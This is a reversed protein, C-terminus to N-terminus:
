NLDLKYKGTPVAAHFSGGHIVAGERALEGGQKIFTVSGSAVPQGDLTVSGTVSSKGDSCGLLVLCCTLFLLTRQVASNNASRRAATWAASRDGLRSTSPIPSSDCPAMPSPPM